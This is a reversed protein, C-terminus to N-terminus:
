LKNNKYVRLVHFSYPELNYEMSRSVTIEGEIPAVKCPEEISNMDELQGKMVYVIGKSSVDFDMDLTVSVDNESPNVLKIIVVNENRSYSVTYYAEQTDATAKLTYDGMQTSYMKQIYYSPTGYSAEGDLWIMNPTWQSYGIRAFLPAYSALVVVDANREIGTLFAAESLAALWYNKSKRGEDNQCHSAYEGAFVKVSRPYEDYFHANEYLWEPKVYYHEDVAYTFDPNEKDKKYYFEWADTYHESTVNPGASGILKMEPYEKHIAEEFLTYRHFFDVKETEWQENGIGILELNFPDPHGMQARVKGWGMEATGNAFEILDLADQIYELFDESDSPVLQTSQFQCAIGVSVVPLAKAGIYECLLFYEYYGIGLTQNYYQYEGTFDNSENNGHVSWRNWNPKREEPAGISKKWQYRNDL